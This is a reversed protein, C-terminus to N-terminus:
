RNGLWILKQAATETGLTARLYYAGSSLRDPTWVWNVRGAAMREGVIPRDVLRGSLNFVEVTVSTEVELDFILATQTRAPNPNPPLFRLVPTVPTEPVGIVTPIDHALARMILQNMSGEAAWSSGDGSMWVHGAEHGAFLEVDTSLLSRMGVQSVSGIFTWTSGDDTSEAILGTGTMMYLATGLDAIDVVDSSPVTGVASWNIGMDDSRYVTGTRSAVFATTGMKTAAVIDSATIAGIASWSAGEDMSEYVSGTETFALMRDTYLITSAVDSATIAGVASWNVGGDSSQHVIGSRSYLFLKTSADGSWSYSLETESARARSQRNPVLCEM